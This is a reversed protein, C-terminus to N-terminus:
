PVLFRKTAEGGAAEAFALTHQELPYAPGLLAALDLRPDPLLAVARAFDGYRAGVLRLEKRVALGLPLPVPRLSRSKLVLTGGPRLANMLPPVAEPDTEVAWDYRDAPLPGDATVAHLGHLRLLRLTLAAIRNDGAVVGEGSVGALADVAALAAAVPEAYAGLLPSLGEPLPYVASAPVVLQEAFAGDRHLGLMRENRCRLPHGGRCEPCAGCPLAPMVAVAQGPSLSTVAGGVALVRGSVEHGPVLPEPTPIRGAVVDLDTRCLGVAAVAVVVDDPAAVVPAPVRRLSVGGGQKVLARMSPANM